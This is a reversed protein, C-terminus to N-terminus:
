ESLSVSARGPSAWLWWSITGRPPLNVASANLPDAGLRPARDGAGKDIAPGLVMGLAGLPALCWAGVLAAPVLGGLVHPAAPHARPSRGSGFLLSFCGARAAVWSGPLSQKQSQCCGSPAPPPPAAIGEGAGLVPLRLFWGQEGDAGRWLGGADGEGPTDGGRRPQDGAGEGGHGHPLRPLSAVPDPQLSGAAGSGLRTGLDMSPRGASTQSRPGPARTLSSGEGPQPHEPPSLRCGPEAGGGTDGWCPPISSFVGSFESREERCQWPHWQGAALGGM